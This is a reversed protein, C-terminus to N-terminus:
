KYSRGGCNAKAIQPCLRVTRKTDTQNDIQSKNIIEM